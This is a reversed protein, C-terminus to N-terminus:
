ASLEKGLCNGFYHQESSSSFYILQPPELWRNPEVEYITLKLHPYGAVFSPTYHWLQYRSGLLAVSTTTAPRSVSPGYIWMYGIIFTLSM